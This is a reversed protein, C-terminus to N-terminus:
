VGERGPLPYPSPESLSTLKKCINKLDEYMKDPNNLVYDAPYRIVVFGLNEIYKQRQQDKNYRDDNFHSSDDIEVM